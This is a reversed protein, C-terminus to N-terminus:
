FDTVHTSPIQLALFDVDEKARDLEARLTANEAALREYDKLFGMLDTCLKDAENQYFDARQSEAALADRLEHATAALAYNTAAMRNAALRAQFNQAAAFTNAANIEGQALAYGKAQESNGFFMM